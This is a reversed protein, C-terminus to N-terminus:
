VGDTKEENPCGEAACGEDCACPGRHPPPHNAPLNCFYKNCFTRSIRRRDARITITGAASNIEATSGPLMGYRSAAYEPDILIERIIHKGTAEYLKLAVDSIERVVEHLPCQELTRVRDSM